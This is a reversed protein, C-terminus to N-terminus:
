LGGYTIALQDVAGLTRVCVLPPFEPHRAYLNMKLNFVATKVGKADVAVVRGNSFRIVFDAYYTIARITPRAPQRKTARKGPIREALVYPVQYGIESIVGARQLRDLRVAVKAEHASDYQRGNYVTARNNYKSSSPAGKLARLASAPVRVVAVM